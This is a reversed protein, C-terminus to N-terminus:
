LKNKVKKEFYSENKLNIKLCKSNSTVQIIVKRMIANNCKDNHFPTSIIASTSQMINEQKM